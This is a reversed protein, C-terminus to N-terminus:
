RSLFGLFLRRLLRSFLRLGFSLLQLLEESLILLLQLKPAAGFAPCPKDRLPLGLLTAGPTTSFAKVVGSLLVSSKPEESSIVFLDRKRPKILSVAANTIEAPFRAVPLVELDSVIPGEDRAVPVWADVMHDGQMITSSMRPVINPQSM